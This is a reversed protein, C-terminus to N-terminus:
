DVVVRVFMESKLNNVKRLMGSNIEQIDLEFFALILSKRQDFCRLVGTRNCQVYALPDDAHLKVWLAEVHSEAEQPQGM